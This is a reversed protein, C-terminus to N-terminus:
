DERQKNSSGCTDPYLLENCVNSIAIHSDRIEYLSWIIVATIGCILGVTVPVKM